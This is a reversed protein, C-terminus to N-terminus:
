RALLLSKKRIVQLTLVLGIGILGLINTLWGPQILLLGSLVLVGREVWKARIHLWGAIGAGLAVAGILATVTVSLIEWPTGYGLMAPNYVFMFPVIFASLGLQIATLATEWFESEAITSAAYVALAVPPTIM